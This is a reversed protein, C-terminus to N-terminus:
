ASVKSWAFTGNLERITNSSSRLEGHARVVKHVNMMDCAMHRKRGCPVHTAEGENRGKERERESGSARSRLLVLLNAPGEHIHLRWMVIEIALKGSMERKKKRRTGAM